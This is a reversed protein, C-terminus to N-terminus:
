WDGEDDLPKGKMDRKTPDGETTMYTFALGCYCCYKPRFEVSADKVYFENGCGTCGCAEIKVLDSKPISDRQDEAGWGMM